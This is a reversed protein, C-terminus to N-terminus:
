ATAGARVASKTTSGAAALGREFDAALDSADELGVSVRVLGSSIGAQGLGQEDLQRHTSSPPHVTMTRVSGLSATRPPITLADIFAAAATRDDLDFALMGGGARLVRQAVAFQPHSPLGPYYVSRVLPQHGELLRALTLATATSREMRVHLTELGRLVLFASFPAASGGTDIQVARIAAIRDASGVVVGALVDSHGGLWKTAAEIVVDAGHEIPRCIYPSAFTNDVVLPLRRTHALRALGPIDAVVITPNAITEAYLMRTRDTIAADVAGLDTIDIFTTQVGLRGLIKELLHRVSGYLAQSAVVHDGASLLSLLTAHVAAMGTAFAFGAEAGEIEAAAAGLATSTPNDIRSYSYGAKRDALIDGLDASDEASFTVAQYIPVADPEQDVRPARTAARIARTGFGLDSPEDSV